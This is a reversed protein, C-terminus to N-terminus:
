SSSNRGARKAARKKASSQAAKSNREVVARAEEETMLKARVFIRLRDELSMRAVKKAISRFTPPGPKVPEQSSVERARSKATKVTGKPAGVAM